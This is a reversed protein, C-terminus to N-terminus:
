SGGLAAEVIRDLRSMAHRRDLRERAYRLAVAGMAERLDDDLQLARVAAALVVPDGPRVVLGAGAARDLEAAVASDPSTAALVPRGAGLCDVLTQPICPGGADARQSLLVLDAAALMSRLRVDDVPGVVRAAAAVEAPAQALARRAGDGVLVLDVAGDLLATAALATAPDSRGDAPVPLVVTFRREPWRLARRVARRDLGVAPLTTWRPLLHVRGSPVGLTRVVAGLDPNVVAVQAARPLLRRETAEAVRLARGGYRGAPRASVLDHVVLVLPAGHRQAIRAGAVAGGLGPTVAVVLDPVHALRTTLALTLLAVDGGARGLGGVALRGSRRLTVSAAEGDLHTVLGSTHRAVTAREPGHDLGVVLVHRGALRRLVALSAPPPTPRRLEGARSGTPVPIRRLHGPVPSSTSHM